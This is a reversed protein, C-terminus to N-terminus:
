TYMILGNTDYVIPNTWGAPRIILADQGSGSEVFAFKVNTTSYIGSSQYEVVLCTVPDGGSAKDYLDSASGGSILSLQTVGPSDPVGDARIVIDWEAKTALADGVTKADAPYDSLTLTKDVLMSAIEHYQVYSSTVSTVRLITGRKTLTLDGEQPVYFSEPYTRNRQIVTPTIGPTSSDIARWFPTYNGGEAFTAAQEAGAQATEAADAADEAQNASHAANGEALEAAYQANQAATKAGQAATNATEAATQAAVAANKATVADTWADQAGTWATEAGAQATEAGAQATEAGARATQAQTVATNAATLTTNAQAIATEAAGQATEAATLAEQADEAAAEAEDRIGNFITIYSAWETLLTKFKSLFWGLNLEHFNTYPFNEFLGM